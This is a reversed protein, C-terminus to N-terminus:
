QTRTMTVEVGVLSIVGTTTDSAHTRQRFIKLHLLEGAACGTMTLGTIAADNLQNTTGKMADVVTSAANFAVDDVEADARCATAAQWVVNGATATGRYKILLDVGAVWDSPLMLTQQLAYEGDSDPFDATCRIMTVETGGLVCVATPPTAALTDWLLGPAAVTGGAAPYWGKSKSTCVNGTGACDFTKNTLTDTSTATIGAAAGGDLIEGTTAGAVMIHGPTVAGTVVAEQGSVDTLARTRLGTWTPATTTLCNTACSGTGMQTTLAAITITTGSESLLSDGLTTASAAKPLTGTTLGSIGGAFTGCTETLTVNDWKPVDSAGNCNPKTYFTWNTGNHVFVRNIAGTVNGLFTLDTDLPQYNTATGNFTGTFTGLNGNVLAVSWTAGGLGVKYSQSPILATSDFATRGSITPAAGTSTPVTLSSAAAFSQDGTTYTNSQDTQVALSGLNFTPVGSGDGNAISIRNTTGTLTRAAGTGAGTRAWFGSTANAALATLDSDLPQAEDRVEQIAAQVDTAAITGNPTFTVGSAAAGAGVTVTTKGGSDAVSVGAGVFNMVSRQTIAVGEDEIQHGGGVSGTGAIWSAGDWIYVVETVRGATNTTQVCITEHAVPTLDACNTRTLYGVDQAWVAAPLLLFLLLFYIRKM